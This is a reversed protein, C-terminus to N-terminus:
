GGFEFEDDVEFGGLIQAEFNRGRQEGAGVLHDFLFSAVETTPGERCNASHLSIDPIPPGGSTAPYHNKRRQQGSAARLDAPMLNCPRRVTESRYLLDWSGDDLDTSSRPLCKEGLRLFRCDVARVIQSVWYGTIMQMMRDSDNL